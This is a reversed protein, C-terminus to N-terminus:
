KGQLINEQSATIKEYAILFEDFDFIGEDNKKDKLIRRRKKNLYNKHEDLARNKPQSISVDTMLKESEHKNTNESSRVLSIFESYSKNKNVDGYDSKCSINSKKTNESKRAKKSTSSASATTEIIEKLPSKVIKFEILKRPRKESMTTLM